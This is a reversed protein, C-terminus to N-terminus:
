PADAQTWQGDIFRWMGGPNKNRLAPPLRGERVNDYCQLMAFRHIAAPIGVATFGPHGTAPFPGGHNMAPSVAVGTPMKDDLLRGVHRRLVPAVRDYLRDDAGATSSYITGTLNGELHDLVALVQEADDAVVILSSNGFAETQLAEPAALFQRATARLLTNQFGFGPGPGPEGGVLLEAGAQRLTNVAQTIGKEVAEGLMTGVPAAKFKQVTARIFQESSEGALLLVLGPNTCFQGCGMLCSASFEDAIKDGREALAGPLVIVPNISSLELYIPKGARDAAEKLALGTSRGGTYGTAGILPHSVLRAGDAHSTRYILQVLAPPMDTDRAAAAAEEALLRTTGPHSPHGKAIVPNGAAIAAAFDGGAAGNFAFPFNNPGFVCVPGLPGYMSRINAKTDLTAARWSGSRAAAAAQRLQNATRPLEAGALRGEAPLGTEAHARAVLEDKRAELREAYRELFRAFREGPWDQILRATESAARIAQEIEEWPSVPYVEPLVARTGPNAAQFTQTAKSATWQGGILVPQVSM